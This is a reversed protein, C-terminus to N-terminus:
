FRQGIQVDRVKLVHVNWLPRGHRDERGDLVGEAAVCLGDGEVLVHGGDFMLLLQFDRESGMSRVERFEPFDELSALDRVLEHAGDTGVLTRRGRGDEDELSHRVPPRRPVRPRRSRRDDHTPQSSMASGTTAASPWVYSRAHISCHNEVPFVVEGYVFSGRALVCTLGFWKAFLM